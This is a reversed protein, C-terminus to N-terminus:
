YIDFKVECINKIRQDHYRITNIFLPFRRKFLGQNVFDM